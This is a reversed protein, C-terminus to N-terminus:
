LFSFWNSIPIINVVAPSEKFLNGFFLSEIRKVETRPIRKTVCFDEVPHTVREM